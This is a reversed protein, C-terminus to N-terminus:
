LPRQLRRRASCVPPLESGLPAAWRRFEETLLRRRYEGVNDPSAPSLGCRCLTRRLFSNGAPVLTTGRFRDFSVIPKRGKAPSKKLMQFAPRPSKKRRNEFREFSRCAPLALFPLSAIFVCSSCILAAAAAASCPACSRLCTSARRTCYKPFFPSSVPIRLCIPLSDASSRGTIPCNALSTRAWISASIARRWFSSAAAAMSAWSLASVMSTVMGPLLGAM